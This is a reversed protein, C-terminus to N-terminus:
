HSRQGSAPQVPRGRTQATASAMLVNMTIPRCIQETPEAATDRAEALRAEEGVDPMLDGASLARGYASAPVFDALLANRAPM